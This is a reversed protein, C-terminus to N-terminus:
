SKQATVRIRADAVLCGKGPPLGFVPNLDLEQIEPIDEVLRSVRLLVEEIAPIDAPAHARYGQLLRYGRIERIMEHADQETLPTVRFRVDGLIEVHIGGLGFAILPGFLPDPAVGIMLEVGSRIMEQVQIGEMDDRRIEEFVRRVTNEDEINLRVAGVETKHVVHQSALKLAVPFGISTAIRVADDVTRALGGAVQPIGFAQLVGRIEESSLWTDGRTEIARAVFRRADDLKIDSFGPVLSLPRSRWEAYAAAKSLVRAASEPFRYSPITENETILSRAGTSTMLCALVPKGAGGAHRARAVGDRIANTVVDSDNRDIPIYIVIMADIEACTLVTEITKGYSDAGASAIMDVPNSFGAAAPLFEKLKAKTSDALEPVTLGGAECADTCLIGPGGANTVIAIRRGNLLPQNDLMAAIDFMEDLTDARIVGTQHFLADVAVDNAALAATHSGAARRGASTRGAKVAIVPKVRAVRRAIRAFRRPNGFSELYLLIVRTNDDVEWYQLLDNGSVDAKNGVSIFTSVGLGRETALALIAIGLAGSQSSMAIRGAPPFVPSFSANLRVSEETNLLGMCNPGVMRMGYGRVKELLKAQLARGEAGAEAFGATIVIVAKIARQACEDIVGLVAARPVAIVALEVAEPLASVSPYARMSAVVGAKPNVPYVPGQFRNQILAELIRSGLSSPDRSAGVVAVGNPKFFWRLSAATLVRDRMESLHVSSETPIVSFDIEINGSDHTEQTPFGSHRFVELMAKNELQTVAWFRSFGVRAALLALRELLHTGIGKGQFRDDVAFSVEAAKESTGMYSGAAVISDEGDAVRRIVLTLQKEPHSSDCFSRLLDPAPESFSFFRQRRSEPSLRHFFDALAKEDETTAVRITATSGDRLLLRGAEASDQYPAPIYLPHVEPM